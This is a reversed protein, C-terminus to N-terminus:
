DTCSFTSDPLKSWTRFCDGAMALDRWRSERRTNSSEPTTLEDEPMACDVIAPLLAVAYGPHPKRLAM